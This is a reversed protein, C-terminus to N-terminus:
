YSKAFEIMAATVSEGMFERFYDRDEVGKPYIRVTPVVTVPRPYDKYDTDRTNFSMVRYKDAMKEVVRDWTPQVSACYPCNKDYFYIMQAASSEVDPEWSVHLVTGDTRCVLKEEQLKEVVKKLIDYREQHTADSLGIVKKSVLPDTINFSMGTASNQSSYETIDKAVAVFLGKAIADITYKRKEVYAHTNRRATEALSVTSNSWPFM